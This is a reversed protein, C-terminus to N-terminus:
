ILDLILYEVEDFLDVSPGSLGSNAIRNTVRIMMM